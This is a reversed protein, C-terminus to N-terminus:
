NKFLNCKDCKEISYEDKSYICEQLEIGEKEALYETVQKFNMNKSEMLATFVNGGSGKPQCNMCCYMQYKKSVTLNGGCEKCKMGKPFYKEIDAKLRIKEVVNNCYM